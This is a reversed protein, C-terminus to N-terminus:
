RPADAMHELIAALLPWDSGDPDSIPAGVEDSVVSTLSVTKSLGLTDLELHVAFLLVRGAGYNAEVIAAENNSHFRAIVKVDQGSGIQSFWPGGYYLVQRATFTAALRAEPDLDIQTMAYDPFVAINNLPGVAAWEILRLRGSFDRPRSGSKTGLYQIRGAAFWAGACVGIYDGGSAVFRRITSIGADTVSSNYDPAWGGPVYIGTLGELNGSNLDRARIERYNVNKSRLFKEFNVVSEAWAGADNYIGIVATQRLVSPASRIPSSVTQPVTSDPTPAHSESQGFPTQTGKTCAFLISVVVIMPVLGYVKMSHGKQSFVLLAM